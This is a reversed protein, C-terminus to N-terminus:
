KQMEDEETRGAGKKYESPTVNMSAKFVRSFYRSSSFGTLDSIESISKDTTNILRVAQDIRLKNVYNVINMGTLAKIKNYLLSRSIFMNSAIYNVDLNSNDIHDIIFANLKTIFEEEANSFCISEVSMDRQEKYRQRIRDRQILQNKILSLLADMDFPKPLFADAGTKYGESMNEDDHYATLLVVPIHSINIDNKVAKCLEFGNMFPMMVDSIIIDPQKERIVDLGSMGDQTTYVNSFYESFADKMYKLLEPTDEVIAVSFTRLFAYNVTVDLNNSELLGTNSNDEASVTDVLGNFTHLPLEYYFTSGKDANPFAGIHGNHKQIIERSFSLGIGSGGRNHQGQYFRTFLHEAEGPLLGIGEDCVSIRVFQKDDTLTTSVTVTTGADSFKLANILFNVLVFECKNQDFCIETIHEDIDYVLKVDKNEFEEEFNGGIQCVWNNLPYNSWQFNSKGEDVKELDLAMDIIGKMSSAQSYIHSLKSKISESLDNNKLMRKLPSCVLTLPTRLEHSINILLNIKEENTKNKVEQIAKKQHEQMTKNKRKHLLYLGYGVLVFYLLIAFRSRWWPPTIVLKVISQPESWKGANTYYSVIITYSGVPLYNISLSNAEPYIWQNNLGKIKFRYVDKQFLNAKHLLVKLELASFDHAVKIIPIKNGNNEDLNIQSGNVSVDMLEVQQPLSSQFQVSPPIMNLGSAGGAFIYGDKACLMAHFLYENASIGDSEDIIYFHRVSPDYTFLKYRTGIWIRGKSDVIVSSGQTFLETKFHHM